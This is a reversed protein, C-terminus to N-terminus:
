CSRTSWPSAEGVPSYFILSASTSGEQLSTTASKSVCRRPITASALIRADMMRLCSSWDSAATTSATMAPLASTIGAMAINRHGSATKVSLAKRPIAVGDGCFFPGQPEDCDDACNRWSEGQEEDCYEDGCEIDPVEGCDTSCNSRTEGGGVMSCVGDGCTAYDGYSMCSTLNGQYYCSLSGPSFPGCNEDCTDGDCWGNGGGGQYEGCTTTGGGDNECEEACGQESGCVNYCWDTRAAVTTPAATQWILWVLGFACLGERTLRM